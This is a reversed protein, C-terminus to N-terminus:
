ASVGTIKILSGPNTIFAVTHRKARLYIRENGENREPPKLTFPVEDAIGGLSGRQMVYATDNDMNPSKLIRLGAIIGMDGTFIPQYNPPLEERSARIDANRLLNTYTRNSVLLTDANYVDGSNGPEELQEQALFIDDFITTADPSWGSASSAPVAEIRPHNAIVQHAIGDIQRVMTNRIRVAADALAGLQNRWEDEFTIWTSLAYKRTNARQQEESQYFEPFESGEAIALDTNADVEDMFRNRSEMFAVQGGQANWGGRFLSEALYENQGLQNITEQILEPQKLFDKVTRDTKNLSFHM